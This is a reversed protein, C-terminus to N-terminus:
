FAPYLFVSDNNNLFLLLLRAEERKSYCHDQKKCGAKKLGYKPGLKKKLTAFGDM